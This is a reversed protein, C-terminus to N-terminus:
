PKKSKSVAQHPTAPAARRPEEICAKSDTPCAVRVHFHNRHPSAGGPQHMARAARAIVDASAGTAHGYALLLNRLGNSVFIHQVRVPGSVLAAVVTWNKKTDFRLAPSAIALGDDRFGIYDNTAVSKDNADLVFFAIDVDRGSQHSAHRPIPGGHEASLDGVGLQVHHTEWVAHGTRRLLTVLETTGWRHSWAPLCRLETGNACDLRLGHVLRGANVHGISQGSLAGDGLSKPVPKSRAETALCLSAAVVGGILSRSQVALDHQFGSARVLKCGVSCSIASSRSIARMGIAVTM